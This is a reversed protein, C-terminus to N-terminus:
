VAQHRLGDVLLALMRQVHDPRGEHCPMCLSAAANLFEDPDIDHRVVGAIIARQFLAQFAPRLRQERRAPLVDFAPDGSYLAAALGRKMTALQAFLQM